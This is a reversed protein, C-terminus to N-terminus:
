EFGDRFQAGDLQGRLEVGPFGLSEVELYFLGRELHAADSADIEIEPAAFADSGAGSSRLAFRPGNIVGRPAPGNITLATSTAVGAYRVTTSIRDRPGALTVSGTGTATSSTPPTEQGPDLSAEIVLDAVLAGAIEGDPAAESAVAIRWSGARLAELQAADVPIAVVGVRGERGPTTVPLTALRQDGAYLEVGTANSSLGAYSARVSVAAETPELTAHGRGVAGTEIPPLAPTRDLAATWTQAGALDRVLGLDVGAIRADGGVDIVEPDLGTHLYDVPLVARIRVAGDQPLALAYAGGVDSTTAREDPDPLRDNDADDFVTIGAFPREHSDFLGDHDDDEFATGSVTGGAAAFEFGTHAIAAFGDRVLPSARPDEVGAVRLVDGPAAAPEGGFLFQAAHVLFQTDVVDIGGGAELRLTEVGGSEVFFRAPLGREVRVREDADVAVASVFYSEDDASGNVIVTDHGEGGQNLNGGTGGDAIFSDDGADGFSANASGTPSPGGDLSDDDEDGHLTDAGAGGVLTDRGAGGSLSLSASAASLGTAVVRDNGDGAEVSLREAAILEIVASTEAVDRLGATVRVDAAATATAIAIEDHEAGGEIVVQDGGIGGDIVESGDGARWILTDNGADGFVQDAFSAPHRGAALTDDGEDGHLVDGGDTGVVTDDGAGASIELAIGLAAVPEPARFDDREGLLALFVREVDGLDVHQDRLRDSLRLTADGESSAAGPRVEFEERADSGALEFRDTDTRDLGGDIRDSGDGVLYFVHDDGAGGDIVDDGLGGTIQDAGGGGDITDAGSGGVIVDDAFSGTLVDDGGEGRLTVGGRLDFFDDVSMGALSFVNTGAHGTFALSSVFLCPTPGGNSVPDVGNIQVEIGNACTVAIPTSEDTTIVLQRGVMRADIVAHCPASAAFLALWALARCCFPKM